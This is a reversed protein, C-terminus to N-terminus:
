ASLVGDPGDAALAELRPLLASPEPMAAIEAAVRRAAARYAPDGLVTGTARAVDEPGRAEPPLAIGVGAAVCRDANEPQDAAVPLLVLPVGAALAALMTGSGAHFVLADSTALLRSMPVWREVRVRPGRHGLATPDLEQGVTAVVDADLSALGDLLGGLADTRGPLMTGLTVVVRPRGAQREDVWSPVQGEIDDIAVPRTPVTTAPPPDDPNHLSPPRTGLYGHRHWSALAPDAALGLSARLTNLPESSLRLGTGRWATAQFALHPIGLREAAIWSGQESDEHIVLDPPWDRALDLTAAALAPAIIGAFGRGWIVAALRRGTLGERGPVQAFVTPLDPPGAIVHRLGVREIAGGISAGGVVVVDHGADRVALALPLLPLLHGLAPNTVFAIRM